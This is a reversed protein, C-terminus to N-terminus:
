QDRYPVFPPPEDIQTSREIPNVFAPIASRSAPNRKAISIAARSATAPYKELFFNAAAALAGVHPGGMVTGAVAPGAPGLGFAQNNGHRNLFREIASDLDLLAGERKGAAALDVGYKQQIQKYVEEKLGRALDKQAEVDASSLEGYKGRLQTYTGRKEAQAEALSLDQPIQSTASGTPVYGGGAAPSVPRITTYPVSKSHKDLFEQKAKSIAALDTAPNVQTGFKAKSRDTAKAVETPDVKLGAADGQQVYNEVNQDIADIKSQLGRRGKPTLPVGEQLGTNIIAANEAETNATSPKLITQYMGRAIPDTVKKPIYRLPNAAAVAEAPNTLTSTTSLGKSIDGTIAAARSAKPLASAVGRTLGGLGGLIVSADGAFGVPDTYATRKAAEWSGYRDKLMQGVADATAVQKPLSEKGAGSMNAITGIALNGLNEATDKPHAVAHAVGKAYNKASEALNRGFGSLSDQQQKASVYKDSSEGPERYKAYPDEAPEAANNYKAYPDEDAM